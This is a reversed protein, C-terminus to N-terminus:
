ETKGWVCQAQEGLDLDVQLSIGFSVAHVYMEDGIGFALTGLVLRSSQDRAELNRERALLRMEQQM